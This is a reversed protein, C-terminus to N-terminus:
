NETITVGTYVFRFLEDTVQTTIAQKATDDNSMSVRYLLAVLHAFQM